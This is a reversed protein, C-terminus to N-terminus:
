GPTIRLSGGSLDEEDSLDNIQDRIENYKAKWLAVRADRLLYPEAECLAGFLYLDPNTTFLAHASASVAGLNKFYIGKVTYGSDPYPGFIFNSGERSIFSPLGDSSRLPYNQYIWQNSKRELWNTPSRSIYAHKLDIYSTPLAVAGSAITDSFATEMDRARVERYIRTEALTIFDPIYSTLDSRHLWNSVATQLQSYTTIAM